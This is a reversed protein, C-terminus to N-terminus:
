VEEDNESEEFLAKLKEFKPNIYTRDCGCEGDNLNHGCKSCLGKCEDSCVSKMPMSLMINSLVAPELDIAKDSFLWYDNEDDAVKSFIEEIDTELEFEFPTLCLDCILTLIAHIKGTFKFKGGINAIQGVVSTKVERNDSYGEPLLITESFSINRIEGDIFNDVNIIM